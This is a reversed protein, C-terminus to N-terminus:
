CPRSRPITLLRVAAGGLPHVDTPTMRQKGKSMRARSNIERPEDEGARSAQEQARLQEDRLRDEEVLRAQLREVSVGLISEIEPSTGPPVNLLERPPQFIKWGSVANHTSEMLIQNQRSDSSSAEARGSCNEVMPTDYFANWLGDVKESYGSNHLNDDAKSSSHNQPSSESSTGNGDSKTTSNPDVPDINLNPLMEMKGPWYPLLYAAMQYLALFNKNSSGVGSAISIYSLLCTAM